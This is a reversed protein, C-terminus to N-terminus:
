LKVDFMKEMHFPAHENVNKEEYIHTGTLRLKCSTSMEVLKCAVYWNQGNNTSLILLKCVSLLNINCYRFGPAAFMIGQIIM